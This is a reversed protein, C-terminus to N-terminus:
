NKLAWLFSLFCLISVVIAHTSVRNNLCHNAEYGDSFLTLTVGLVPRDYQDMIKDYMEFAPRSHELTQPTGFDNPDCVNLSSFGVGHAMLSQLMQSPLIYSHLDNKLGITRLIPLPLNNLIGDKGDFYLNRMISPTTMPPLVCEEEKRQEDAHNKKM